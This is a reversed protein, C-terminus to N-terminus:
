FGGTDGMQFPPQHNEPEEPGAASPRETRTTSGLATAASTPPVPRETPSPPSGATLHSITTTPGEERSRDRRHGARRERSRREPLPVHHEARSATIVTAPVVDRVQATPPQGEDT